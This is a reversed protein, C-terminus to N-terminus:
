ERGQKIIITIVRVYGYGHKCVAFFSLNDPYYKYYVKHNKSKKKRSICGQNITDITRRKVEFWELGFESSRQSIRATAHPSFLLKKM